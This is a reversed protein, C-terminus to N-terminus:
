VEWGIQFTFKMGERDYPLKRYPPAVSDIKEPLSTYITKQLEDAGGGKKPLV